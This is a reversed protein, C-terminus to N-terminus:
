FFVSAGVRLGLVIGDGAKDWDTDDLDPDEFVDRPRPARRLRLRPRPRGLLFGGPVPPRRRRRGRHPLYPHTTRRERNGDNDVDEDGVDAGGFGVRGEVYPRVWRGPLFMWHFYPVFQGAVLTGRGDADGLDNGDALVRRAPAEVIARYKLFVYGFGIGFVNRPMLPWPLRQRDATLKLGFGISNVRDGPDDPNGGNRNFHSVDFLNTDTCGSASATPAQSRRRRARRCPWAPSWPRRWGGRAAGRRAHM